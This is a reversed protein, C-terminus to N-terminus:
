GAVHHILKVGPKQSSRKGPFFSSYWCRVEILEITVVGRLVHKGNLELVLASVTHNGAIKTFQAAGLPM